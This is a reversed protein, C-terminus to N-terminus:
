RRTKEPIVWVEAMFPKGKLCTKKYGEM